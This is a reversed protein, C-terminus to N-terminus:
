YHNKTKTKGKEKQKCAEPPHEGIYSAVIVAPLIGEVQRPMDRALGRVAENAQVCVASAGSGFRGSENGARSGLAAGRADNFPDRGVGGTAAEISVYQILSRALYSIRFFFWNCSYRKLATPLGIQEGSLVQKFLMQEETRNKPLHTSLNHRM